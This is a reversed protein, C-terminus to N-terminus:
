FQSLVQPLIRETWTREAWETAEDFFKKAKLGPHFWRGMGKHKSSVVRFTMIARQTKGGVKRQIIRTGELFPIGTPGQKPLGIDGHGGGPGPGKRVPTALSNKRMVDFSHLTGLKDQGSADKEIKAYPIGRAKLQKKVAENLDKAQAWTASPKKNLQFPIVAYRSGDAATKAKPSKLLNDIMEHPQLGEELWMASVDLNIAWTADDVKEISLAQLYKDRTSHLEAQVREVVHAHTAVTLERAAQDLIKNLEKDLNQLELIESLDININIM